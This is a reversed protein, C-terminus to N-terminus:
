DKPKRDNPMEPQPTLNTVAQPAHNIESWALDFASNYQQFRQPISHSSFWYPRSLYSFSSSKFKSLAKRVDKRACKDRIAIEKGKLPRLTESTLRFENGELTEAVRAMLEVAKTPNSKVISKLTKINAHADLIPHLWEGARGELRQFTPVPVGLTGNEYIPVDLGLYGVALLQDFVQNLTVSSEGVAEYKVGGGVEALKLLNTAASLVPSLTINSNSTASVSKGNNSGDNTSGPILFISGNTPYGLLAFDSASGARGNGRQQTGKSLSVQMAHALFIRSIVRLYIAHPAASKATAALTQRVLEDSAWNSLRERLESEDAAYTRADSISISGSIKDSQLYNIGVPVGEIPFAASLGSSSKAEFTFTPFLVRPAEAYTNTVTTSISVPQPLSHPVKDYTTAWYGNFYVKHFNTIQLRYRHDDLALFGRERYQKAQSSTTTQVLFVDGVTLDATLPYVPIIQSARITNCWDKAVGEVRKQADNSVCGSAITLLLPISLSLWTQAHDKQPNVQKAMAFPIPQLLQTLSGGALVVFCAILILPRAYKSVIQAESQDGQRIFTGIKAV